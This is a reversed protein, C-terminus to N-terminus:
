GYLTSNKVELTRDLILENSVMDVITIGVEDGIDISADGHRLYGVANEGLQFGRAADSFVWNDWPVTNEWSNEGLQFGIVSFEDGERMPIGLADGGIHFVVVKISQCPPEGANELRVDLKPYRVPTAVGSLVVYAITSMAMLIVAIMIVEGIIPSVGRQELSQLLARVM